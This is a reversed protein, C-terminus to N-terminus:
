ESKEESDKRCVLEPLPKGEKDQCKMLNSSDVRQNLQEAGQKIGDLDFNCGTFLSAIALFFWGYILKVIIKSQSRMVHLCCVVTEAHDVRPKDVVLNAVACLQSIKKAVLKWDRAVILIM